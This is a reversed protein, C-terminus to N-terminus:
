LALVEVYRAGDARELTIQMATAAGASLRSPIQEPATWQGGLLVRVDFRRVQALLRVPPAPPSGGAGQARRVLWDEEVAYGVALVAAGADFRLVDLADRGEGASAVRLALPLTGGVGYRGAFLRDPVRQAIDRELQALTRLVRQTETADADIRARQAMVQDLGRWTMAALLAFLTIAVLVEVLTFGTRRMRKM